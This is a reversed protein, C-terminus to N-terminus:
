HACVAHLCRPSLRLFPELTAYHFAHFIQHCHFSLYDAITSFRFFIRFLPTHRLFHRLTAFADAVIFIAVHRLPLPM